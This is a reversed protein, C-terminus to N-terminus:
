LGIREIGIARKKLEEFLRPLVREAAVAMELADSIMQEGPSGEVRWIMRQAQGDEYVIETVGHRSIRMGLFDARGAPGHFALQQGM